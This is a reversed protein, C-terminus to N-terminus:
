NKYRGRFGVVESRLLTIKRRPQEERVDEHSFPLIITQFFQNTIAKRVRPKETRTLWVPLGYTERNKIDVVGIFETPVISLM